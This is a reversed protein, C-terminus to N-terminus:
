EKNGYAPDNEDDGAPLRGYGLPAVVNWAGILVGQIGRPIVTSITHWMVDGYMVLQYMTVAIASLVV